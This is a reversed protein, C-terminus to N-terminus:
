FQFYIFSKNDYAGFLVIAATLLGYSLIRAPAPLKGVSYRFDSGRCFFEVIMLIAISGLSIIMRAPAISEFSGPVLSFDPIYTTVQKIIYFADGFSDARFFIWTLCIILFTFLGGILAPLAPIKNYHTIKKIKDRIGYTLKGIVLYVGNLLGWVVFTWNAGHWIGSISMTILQNLCWRPKSVRNGGLPIYIYDRFWTSLSIHWRRWFDTVSAAYYPTDFNRMLKFGMVQAAGIAIDSYGSFDCYIQFAFFIIGVWLAAPGKSAVDGYVNDVFMSLNDAVVVKKFMGWLMMRGGQSLNEYTIYHKYKFQSILNHAREIPGAVLQPFYMLFVAYTIFNKEPEEKGTYVDILYGMAQFTHFSIGIPLMVEPLVVPALGLKLGFFNITDEFFGLYKFWLVTIINTIIIALFILKKKRKDEAYRAILLSGFYVIVTTFAVVLIYIPIFSAYFWCSALLLFLNRHSEKRLLFYVTVTAPFFILFEISNFLM